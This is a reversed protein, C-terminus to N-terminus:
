TNDRTIMRRPMFGFMTVDDRRSEGHSYDEFERLIHARQASMPMRHYDKILEVIRRKGFGRRRQGGIQDAIGDSWLYFSMGPEIAVDHSNFAQSGPYRRYGIGAKDGKVEKADGSSSVQLLSFRAGAFQMSKMDAGILCIGLELGDDSDGEDSDQSLSTQVIRHMSSLIQDPSRIDPEDLAQDLAGNAIMTMFAGPTGHGTCDAVVVVFGDDLGRLWIMDGGVIDRPEWIMLHDAFIEKFQSELPLLARQIRSAYALSETIQGHAEALQREAEKRDTIDYYTLMKGGDALTVRQYVLTKGDARIMEETIFGGSRVRSLRDSLFDEFEDDPVDYIGSHRNYEIIEGLTPRTAIFEESMGWLERYAKNCVLARLDSDMFLIGYSIGDMIASLNELTRSLEAEAAKRKTIDTFTSVFGGDPLGGGRVEIYEGTPRQREFHHEASKRAREVRERIIENADGPGFENRAADFHMLTEFNQGEFVLDPPYDRVELYRQNWIIMKLDGDFAAVGQNLSSLVGELLNTKQRVEEEAEVVRVVYDRLRILALVMSGLEDNTAKPISADTIGTAIQRMATEVRGMPAVIGQIVIRWGLIVAAVIAIVLMAITVALSGDVTEQLVEIESTAADVVISSIRRSAVELSGAESVFNLRRVILDNELGIQNIRQDFINSRGTGWRELQDVIELSVAGELGMSDINRKLNELHKAFNRREINVEQLTEIFLLRSLISRIEALTVDIELSYQFQVFDRDVLREIDARAVEGAGLLDVFTMSLDFGAIDKIETTSARMESLDRDLEDFIRREAERVELLNLLTSDLELFEGDIRDILADLQLGIPELVTPSIASAHHRTEDWANSAIEYLPDYASITQANTAEVVLKTFRQVSDDLRRAHEVVPISDELLARLSAASTVFQSVAFVSASAAIMFIVGSALILRGRISSVFTKM